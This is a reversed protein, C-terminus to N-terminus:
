VKCLNKKHYYLLNGNIKYQIEFVLIALDPGKLSCSNDRKGVPRM